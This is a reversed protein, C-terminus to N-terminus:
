CDTIWTSSFYVPIISSLFSHVILNVLSLVRGLTVPFSLLVARLIVLQLQLAVWCLSLSAVYYLNKDNCSQGVRTTVCWCTSLRVRRLGGWKWSVDDWWSRELHSRWRPSAVQQCPPTFCGQRLLSHHDWSRCSVVRSVCGDHVRAELLGLNIEPQNTNWFGQLGVYVSQVETCWSCYFIWKVVVTDWCDMFM